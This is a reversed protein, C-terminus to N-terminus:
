CQAAGFSVVRNGAGDLVPVRGSPAQCNRGPAHGRLATPGMARGFSFPLLAMDLLAAGYPRPAGSALMLRRLNRAADRCGDARATRKCRDRARVRAQDRENVGLSRAVATGDIGHHRPQLLEGVRLAQRGAGDMSLVRRVVLVHQAGEAVRPRGDHEPGEGHDGIGELGYRRGIRVRPPTVKGTPQNAM